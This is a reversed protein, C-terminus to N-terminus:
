AAADKEVYRPFVPEAPPLPTGPKVRGGEGLSAFSREAAPAAVLDLLKSASHPM